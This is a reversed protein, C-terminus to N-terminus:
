LSFLCIEVAWQLSNLTNPNVTVARCSLVQIFFIHATEHDCIDILLFGLFLALPPAENMGIVKSLAAHLWFTEVERNTFNNQM